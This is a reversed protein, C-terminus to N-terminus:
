LAESKYLLCTGLPWSWSGSLQPKSPMHSILDGFVCRSNRFLLPMPWTARKFRWFTATYRNHLSAQRAHEFVQCICTPLCKINHVPLIWLCWHWYEVTLFSLFRCWQSNNTVWSNFIIRQKNCKLQHHNKM